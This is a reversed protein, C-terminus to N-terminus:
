KRSILEDIEKALKAINLKNAKELTKLYDRPFANSGGLAGVIAGAITALTDTDYGANVCSYITELPDGDNAAIIGFASPVSESIHLGTGIQDIINNIKTEKDSSSLGLHIAYKMRAFVSPGAVDKYEELGIADGKEAGYLGAKIVSYLDANENFAESVACAVACAGSIALRNGHTIRTTQIAEHLAKEINGPNFIGIPYIRMAAGNTAQRTVLTSETPKSVTKGEFEYIALRTTPGAFRDFFERHKSWEVLANKIADDDVEGENDLISQAVFFASSFDDTVQGAVSGAAFTDNPPILFENVKGGFHEIIQAKSRAETAAGMADGTAAGILCGLIKEYYM